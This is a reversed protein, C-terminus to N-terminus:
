GTASSWGSRATGSKSAFRAAARTTPARSSSPSCCGRRRGAGEPARRRHAIHEFGWRVQEGTLPKNGFKAQAVRVAEVNLIGNDIGLNYYGTGVRKPDEMNGKGASLVYKDVDHLVAFDRGSPHTTIAVYGIAQPGPPIVDEESNSWINGIIHDVPFGIKAATKLAVPNM